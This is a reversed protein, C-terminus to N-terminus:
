LPSASFLDTSCSGIFAQQHRVKSGQSCHQEIHSFLRIFHEVRQHQLGRGESAQHISHTSFSDPPPLLETFGTDDTKELYRLFVAHRRLPYGFDVLLTFFPSAAQQLDTSPVPGIAGTASPHFPTEHGLIRTFMSSLM